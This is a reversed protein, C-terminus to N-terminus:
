RRESGKGPRGSRHLASNRWCQRRGRARRLAALAPGLRDIWPAFPTRPPLRRIGAAGLMRDILDSMERDVAYAIQRENGSTFAFVPAQRPNKVWEIVREARYKETLLHEKLWRNSEDRVARCRPCPKSRKV